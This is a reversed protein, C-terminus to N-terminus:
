FINFNGCVGCIQYRDKLFTLRKLFCVVGINTKHTTDGHLKTPLCWHRFTALLFDSLDLHLGTLSQPFVCRGERYFERKLELRRTAWLNM